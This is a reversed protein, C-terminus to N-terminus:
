ILQPIDKLSIQYPDKFDKIFWEIESLYIKQTSPSNYRKRLFFSCKELFNINKDM